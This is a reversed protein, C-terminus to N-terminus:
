RSQPAGSARRAKVQAAWDPRGCSLGEALELSEKSGEAILRPVYDAVKLASWPSVTREDAASLYWRAFTGWRGDAAQASLSKRLELYKEAAVPQLLHRDNLRMAAVCEALDPLWAPVVSGAGPALDEIWANGDTCAVAVRTANGNLVARRLSAPHHFPEGIPQGFATEWVRVSGEEAATVLFRDDPSFAATEIESGHELPDVFDDGTAVRRISALRNTEGTALLTADRNLSVSRVSGGFYQHPGVARGGPLSWVQVAMDSGASAMCRGDASFGMEYIYGYHGLMSTTVRGSAAEAISVVGHGHPYQDLNGDCSIFWKGDPSFGAWYVTDDHRV